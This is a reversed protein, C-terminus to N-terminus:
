DVGGKQTPGPQNLIKEKEKQPMYLPVCLTAKCVGPDKYSADVNLAPSPGVGRSQAKGAGRGLKSLIDWKTEPEEERESM